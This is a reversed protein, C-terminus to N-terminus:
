GTNKNIIFYLYIVRGNPSDDRSFADRQVSHESADQRTQDKDFDPLVVGMEWATRITAEGFSRKTFNKFM